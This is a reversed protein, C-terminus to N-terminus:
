QYHKGNTYRQGKADEVLVTARKSVRNVIGTHEHGEYHFRVKKGPQIGFKVRAMERPTTLQHKHATHGFFRRSISQFRARSCSSDDWLMMELLHIIEHEMIRQLAELRDRCTLGCAILPAESPDSFSRFLIPASFSIAYQREGAKRRTATQGGSSTMRQSFKFELPIKGLSKRVLGAFFLSDYQDFLSKLDHPHIKNFNAADLWQSQQLLTAHIQSSRAAIEQAHLNASEIHQLLNM